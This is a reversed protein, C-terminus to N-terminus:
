QIDLTFSLAHQTFGLIKYFRHTEIRQNGSELRIRYCKKEKAIKICQEILKNGFGKRRNEESVILEPIYLELKDRNLRSIFMLSIMGIIKSDLEAVLIQKDSNSIYQKIQKEFVEMESDNKAKPRGLKYLLDLIVPIDKDTANRVSIQM